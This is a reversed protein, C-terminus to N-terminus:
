AESLLLFSFIRGFCSDQPDALYGIGARAHKRTMQWNGASNPVQVTVLERYVHGKWILKQCTGVRFVVLKRNHDLPRAGLRGLCRHGVVHTHKRLM